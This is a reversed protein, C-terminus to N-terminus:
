DDDDGGRLRGTWADVIFRSTQRDKSGMGQCHDGRRAPCGGVGVVAKYSMARETANLAVSCALNLAINERFAARVPRKFRQV